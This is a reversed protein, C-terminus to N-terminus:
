EDPHRAVVVYKVYKGSSAKIFPLEPPASHSKFARRREIAEVRRVMEEVPAGPRSIWEPWPVVDYISAFADDGGTILQYVINMAWNTGSKAPCSIWVDGDRAVVAQQQASDMWPAGGM